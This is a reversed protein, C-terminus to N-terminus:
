KLSMRTGLVTKKIKLSNLILSFNFHVRESRKYVKPLHIRRKFIKILTIFFLNNLNGM